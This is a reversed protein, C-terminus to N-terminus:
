ESAGRNNRRLAALVALATAAIILAVRLPIVVAKFQVGWATGTSTPNRWWHRCDAKGGQIQVTHKGFLPILSEVKRYEETKVAYCMHCRETQAPRFEVSSPILVAAILLVLAVTYGTKMTSM